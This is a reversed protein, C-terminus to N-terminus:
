NNAFIKETALEHCNGRTELELFNRIKNKCNTKRVHMVNQFCCCWFETSFELHHILEIKSRSNSTKKNEFNVVGIIHSSNEISM